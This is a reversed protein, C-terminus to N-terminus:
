ILGKGSAFANLTGSGSSNTYQLRVWPASLQNMDFYVENPSGSTIVTSAGVVNIWNGANIVAGEATQQYDISVQVQLSGSPTSAINVQLGINDLNLINVPTSTYVNTSSVAVSTMIQIKPVRFHDAM